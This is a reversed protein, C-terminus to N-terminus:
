PKRTGRWPKPIRRGQAQYVLALNNYTMAIDPHEKGLVKERIALAKQYFALAQPYDGQAQYVGAINNYTMAIDPHEKGLVKELIALAKQYGELAQPYDGQVKYM